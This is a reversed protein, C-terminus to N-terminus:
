TVHISLERMRISFFVDNVFRGQLTSFRARAGGHGRWEGTESVCFGAPTRGGLAEKARRRRGGRKGSIHVARPGRITKM